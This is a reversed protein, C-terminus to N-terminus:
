VKSFNVPPFANGPRAFYFGQAYKVGLNKITLLEENTEVGEAIVNAKIRLAIDMLALVLNQKILNSDINRILNIDFKIFDPNLLAISKLSSYGAGADDISIKFGKSKFFTLASKFAQFNKIATRETIELVIYQPEINSNKLIELAQFRPDYIVEPESNIFIYQHEKFRPLYSLAKERCLRELEWVLNGETAINFLIEPNEMESKKPGRTLAEYGLIKKNSIDIIPQFVIKIEAKNIIRKLMMIKFQKDVKEYDSAMISAENIGRYVLRELRINPDNFILSYGAYVQFDTSIKSVVKKDIKEFITYILKHSIERLVTIDMFGKNNPIVFLVIDDGRARNVSIIRRKWIKMSSIENITKSLNNIIIDIKEWGYAKEYKGYRSLDIVIVGITQYRDLIKRLTEILLPVTPLKSIKDYLIDRYRLYELRVMDTYNSKGKKGKEM